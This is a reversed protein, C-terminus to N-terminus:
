MSPVPNFLPHKESGPHIDKHHKKCRRQRRPERTSIHTPTTDAEKGKRRPDVQKGGQARTKNDRYLSKGHEMRDTRNLFILTEIAGLSHLM